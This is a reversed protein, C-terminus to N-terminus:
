FHAEFFIISVKIGCMSWQINEKFIINCLTYCLKWCKEAFIWNTQGHCGSYYVHENHCTHDKTNNNGYDCDLTSKDIYLTLLRPVTSVADSPLLQFALPAYGFCVKCDYFDTKSYRELWYFILCSFTVTSHKTNRRWAQSTETWNEAWLGAWTKWPKDIGRPLHQSVNLYNMVAEVDKGIWWEHDDEWKVIYLM